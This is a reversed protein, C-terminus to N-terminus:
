SPRQDCGGDFMKLLTYAECINFLMKVEECGTTCDKTCPYQDVFDKLKKYVAKQWSDM